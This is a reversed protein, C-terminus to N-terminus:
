GKARELYARVTKHQQESLLQHRHLSAIWEHINMLAHLNCRHDKLVRAGGQDRDIIVLFDKVRLGEKRLLDLFELKSQGTTILDDIVLVQDGPTFHGEIRQKKGYAKAEKRAMLMSWNGQLCTATALAIAAYPIGLIHQFNLSQAVAALAKGLEALLKPKSIVLRLDLYFPSKLGSKLTFDGFQIVGAHFLEVGLDAPKMAM